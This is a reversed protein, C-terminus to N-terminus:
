IGEGAAPSVQGLYENVAGPRTEIILREPERLDVGAIDKELLREDKQAKALRSLALGIDHEPLKVSMGNKLTLDWRRQSILTAAEVQAFLDPEAQLMFLFDKAREPVGEGVLMVLTSFEPARRDTLVVGEDDIVSLRGERQWLAFPVREVLRVYITNPLQRKVEADKIWSLQMILEQAREVDFAFLPDGPKVDVIAKISQADTYRRGEVYVNAVRYGMDSSKGLLRMEAWHSLASGAGSLTIWAGLWIVGALVATIIGLRQAGAIM